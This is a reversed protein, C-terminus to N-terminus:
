HYFTGGKIQLKVSKLTYGTRRFRGTPETAEWRQIDDRWEITFGHYRYKTDTIREKEPKRWRGGQSGAQRARPDGPRFHNAQVAPSEQAKRGNDQRWNPNRNNRM